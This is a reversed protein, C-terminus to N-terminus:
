VYCFIVFQWKIDFSSEILFINEAVMFLHYFELGSGEFQKEMCYVNTIDHSFNRNVIRTSM